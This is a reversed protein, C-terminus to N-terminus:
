KWYSRIIILALPVVMLTLMVIIFLGVVISLRWNKM